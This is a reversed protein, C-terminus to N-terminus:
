VEYNKPIRRMRELYLDDILLRATDEETLQGDQSKATILLAIAAISIAVLRPIGIEVLSRQVRTQDDLWAFYDPTGPRIMGMLTHKTVIAEVSDPNALMALGPGTYTVGPCARSQIM